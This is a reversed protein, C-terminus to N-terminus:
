PHNCWLDALLFCLCRTSYNALLEERGKYTDKSDRPIAIAFKVEADDAYYGIAEESNGDNFAETSLSVVDEPGNEGQCGILILSLAIIVMISKSM